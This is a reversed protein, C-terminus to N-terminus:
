SVCGAVTDSHHRMKNVSPESSALLEVAASGVIIIFECLVLYVSFTLCDRKDTEKNRYVHKLVTTLFVSLARYATCCHIM